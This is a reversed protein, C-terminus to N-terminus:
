KTLIAEIRELRDRADKTAVGNKYSMLILKVSVLFVAAELLLDHTFGKAWIAVVFLVLTIVITALSASDVYRSKAM